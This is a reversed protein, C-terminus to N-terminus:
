KGIFGSGLMRLKTSCDMLIKYAEHIFEPTVNEANIMLEKCSKALDHLYSVVMIEREFRGNEFSLTLCEVNFEKLINCIEREFDGSGSLKINLEGFSANQAIRRI